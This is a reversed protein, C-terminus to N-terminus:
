DFHFLILILSITSLIAGFIFFLFNTKLDDYAITAIRVKKGPLIPVGSPNLSDLILHCCFILYVTLCVFIALLPSFLSFPAGACIAMLILLPSLPSHTLFKREHKFYMEHDLWDNTKGALYFLLVLLVFIPGLRIILNFCASLLSGIGLSVSVHAYQKM